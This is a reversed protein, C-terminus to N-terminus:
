FGEENKKSIREMLKDFKPKNFLRLGILMGVFMLIIVCLLWEIYPKVDLM